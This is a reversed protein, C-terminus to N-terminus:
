TNVPMQGINKSKAVYFSPAWDPSGYFRMGAGIAAVASEIMSLVVYLANAMNYEASNAIIIGPGFVSEAEGMDIM